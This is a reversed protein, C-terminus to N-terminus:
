CCSSCRVGPRASRSTILAGLSILRVAVRRTHGTLRQLDLALGADYLIVAVSLSVLPSFAPGLLHQPNVDGTLAGATFGVPLLIVLAPFRLRSAVIQCGVALVLTLGVGLLIQSTTV